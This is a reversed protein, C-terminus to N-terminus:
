CLIIVLRMLEREVVVNGGPNCRMSVERLDRRCYKSTEINIEKPPAGKLYRALRM